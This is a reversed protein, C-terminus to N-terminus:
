KQGDLNQDVKVSWVPMAKDVRRLGIQDAVSHDHRPANASPTDALVLDPQASCARAYSSTAMRCTTTQTEAGGFTPCFTGQAVLGQAM